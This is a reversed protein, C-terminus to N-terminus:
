SQYKSTIDLSGDKQTGFFWAEDSSGDCAYAAVKDGEVAVGITMTKGDAMPIDAIYHASQPFNKVVSPAPSNSETGSGGSCAAVTGLALTAAVGVALMRFQKRM